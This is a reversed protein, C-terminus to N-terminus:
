SRNVNNIVEDEVNYYPQDLINFYGEEWPFKNNNDPFVLIIYDSLGIEYSKLHEPLSSKSLCALDINDLIGSYLSNPELALEKKKIMTALEGIINTFHELFRNDVICMIEPHKPLLGHTHPYCYEMSSYVAHIQVKYKSEHIFIKRRARKIALKRKCRM